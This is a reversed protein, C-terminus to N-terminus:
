EFLKLESELRVYDEDSGSFVWDVKSTLRRCLDDFQEKGIPTLGFNNLIVKLKDSEFNVRKEDEIELVKEIEIYSINKASVLAVEYQEEKSFFRKTERKMVKSNFGFTWFIKIFGIFQKPDIPQIIETRNHAHFDGCKVVVESYKDSNIRVRIDYKNEGISGLFLVSM